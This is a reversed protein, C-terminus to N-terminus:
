AQLNLSLSSLGESSQIQLYALFVVHLESSFPDFVGGALHEDALFSLESQCWPLCCSCIWFSFWGMLCNRACLFPAFSDDCSLAVYLLPSFPTFAAFGLSNRNGKPGLGLLPFLFKRGVEIQRLCPCGAAIRDIWFCLLAGVLLSLVSTSTRGCAM